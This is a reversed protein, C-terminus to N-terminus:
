LGGETVYKRWRPWAEYNEEFHRLCIPSMKNLVGCSELVGTTQKGHRGGCGQGPQPDACVLTNRKLAKLLYILKLSRRKTLLFSSSLWPMAWDVLLNYSCGDLQLHQLIRGRLGEMFVYLFPFPLLVLGICM